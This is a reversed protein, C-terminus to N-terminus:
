KIDKKISELIKDIEKISKSGGQAFTPNGNCKLSVEKVINGAHIRSNSKAVFNVSNDEKINAFLIFGEKMENMLTDAISKLINMDKDKVKMIICEIGNIIEKHEKYIDLNQLTNKEKQDYYSKELEKEEQRIYQLENRNYIIDKYSQPKDNNIEVDM